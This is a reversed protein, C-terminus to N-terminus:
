GRPVSLLNREIRRLLRLVEARQRESMGRTTQEELEAWADKVPGILGRGAETLCVIVSRGDTPSPMREVLGQRELRQVTRTVTSADLRLGNALDSLSQCGSDSLRMLLLEQGPYLGLKALLPAAASWHARAIRAILLSIQGCDEMLM